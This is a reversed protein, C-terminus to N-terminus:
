GNWFAIWKLLYHVPLTVGAQHFAQIAALMALASLGAMSGLFIVSLPVGALKFKAKLLNAWELWGACLLLATPIVAPYAYRAWPYLPNEVLFGSVGRTVALAWPMFFSMGLIFILDWRLDKRKSWLLHGAGALGIVTLLELIYNVYPTPLVVKDGALSAWFTRFLTAFADRYYWGNGKWDQITALFLSLDIGSNALRASIKDAWPRLRFASQEGSGNRILNQFHQGDWDVQSGNPDSFHPMTYHEGPALVLGDMFIRSHATVPTYQIYLTANGADDPIRFVLHYFMPKTNLEFTTQPSNVFLGQSTLFRIYPSTLQAAQDAWIWAGFTVTRGRISSAIEPSLLQLIQSPTNGGSSGIQFVYNGAPALTSKVRPVSTQAPSEYWAWPAGWQLAALATILIGAAIVSVSLRSFRGHLLGFLLVFPTLLFAFWATNKSLYCFVLTFGLFFLRGISYGRKMLRLGAWLFLSAALVASVDNNVATMMDVFAPLLALFAAAMWRLPHGKPLIEGLAYWATLLILLYLLLSISRVAYYQILINANRMFRLPLSALFYYGPVDGVQPVGIVIPESGSLDPHFNRIKYWGFQMLSNGVERRMEQDYEGVVPWGPRNAALWAYEFHGPEDYHWWPPIILMYVAGQIFGLLLISLLLHRPIWDKLVSAIRTRFSSLIAQLNSM